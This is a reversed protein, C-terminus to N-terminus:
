AGAAEALKKATKWHLKKVKPAEPIEGIINPTSDEFAKAEAKAAESLNRDEYARHAAAKSIEKQYSWQLDEAEKPSDRWGESLAERHEQENECIRQHSRNFLAVKECAQRYQDQSLFMSQHPETDMCMIKGDSGKSAKYVMTPYPQPGANPKRELDLLYKGMPTATSIDLNGYRVTQSM